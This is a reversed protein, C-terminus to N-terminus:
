DAAQDIFLSFRRKILGKRNADDFAMPILQVPIVLYEM